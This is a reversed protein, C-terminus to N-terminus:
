PNREAPPSGPLARDRSRHLSLSQVHARGSRFRRLPAASMWGGADRDRVLGSVSRPVRGPRAAGYGGCGQLPASNRPLRAGPNEQRTVAQRTKRARHRHNRPHSRSVPRNSVHRGPVPQRRKTQLGAPTARSTPRPHPRRNRTVRGTRPTQPRPMRAATPRPTKLAM